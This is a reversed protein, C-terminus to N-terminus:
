CLLSVAMCSKTITDCVVDRSCGDAEAAIYRSEYLKIRVAPIFSPCFSLVLGAIPPIPPQVLSAIRDSAWDAAKIVSFSIKNQQMPCNDSGRHLVRGIFLLLKHVPDGTNVHRPAPMAANSRGASDMRGTHKGGMSNRGCLPRRPSAHLVDRVLATAVRAFLYTVVGRM